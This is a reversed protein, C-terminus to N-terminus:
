NRKVFYPFFRIRIANPGLDHLDNPCDRDVGSDCTIRSCISVTSISKAILKSARFRTTPNTSIALIASGVSSSETPVVGEALLESKNPVVLPPVNM